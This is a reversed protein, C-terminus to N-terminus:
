TVGAQPASPAAGSHFHLEDAGLLARVVADLNVGPAQTPEWAIVSSAHPVAPSAGLTRAVRADSVAHRTRDDAVFMWTTGTPVVDVRRADAAPAMLVADGGAHWAAADLAADDAGSVMTAGVARCALWWQLWTIGPAHVVRVLGDPPVGAARLRDRRERAGSWLSPAPCVWEPGDSPWEVVLPLPGGRVRGLLAGILPDRIPAALASRAEPPSGSNWTRVSNM